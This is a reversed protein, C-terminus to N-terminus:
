VYGIQRDYNAYAMLINYLMDQCKDSNWSCHQDSSTPYNTFTRTVDKQIRHEDEPNELEILKQYIGESHMARERNVRCLMCWIDGRLADPVGALLSKRVRQVDLTLLPDFEEITNYMGVLKRWERETIISVSDLGQRNFPLASSYFQNTLQKIEEQEKKKQQDQQFEKLEGIDVIVQNQLKKNKNKQKRNFFTDIYGDQIRLKM